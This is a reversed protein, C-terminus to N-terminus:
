GNKTSECFEKYESSLIEILEPHNLEPYEADWKLFSRKQKGFIHFPFSVYGYGKVPFCIDDFGLANTLRLETPEYPLNFIVTDNYKGDKYRKIPKYAQQGPKLQSKVEVAKWSKGPHELCVIGCVKGAFFVSKNTIFSVIEADSICKDNLTAIVTDHWEIYETLYELALKNLEGTLEFIM